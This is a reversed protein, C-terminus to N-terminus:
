DDLLQLTGLGAILILGGIFMAQTGPLLSEIDLVHGAPIMATISPILAVLDLLPGIAAAFGIAAAIPLTLRQAWLRVRLKRVIRDSFGDDEIPEAAFMSKLLEDETDSMKDAMNIINSIM